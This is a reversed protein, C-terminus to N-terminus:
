RMGGSAGSGADSRPTVSGTSAATSGADVPLVVGTIWRAEDSALFMVAYGVDWGTGETGLLTTRSRAERMEPTMGRSAVMPTYVTGPAVCNVRIGERGHHAAMARTLSIVAGKSTPYLLSPHGGRIGAGSSINVISGGGAQRMEPIAHRAMLVMSGVNIRMGQDWADMDVEVATGAPGTVGVNNVLIDLRGWKAVTDAVISRCSVEDAVDGELVLSEGGEQAIMRATEEASDRVADVLTVKAGHRALLVATARGNGIGEARSGAGTVIAVKGALRDDRRAM